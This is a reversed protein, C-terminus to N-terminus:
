RAKTQKRWRGTSGQRDSALESQRSTLGESDAVQWVGFSAQEGM